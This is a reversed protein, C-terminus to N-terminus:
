LMKDSNKEITILLLLKINTNVFVIDGLRERFSHPVKHIIQEDLMLGSWVKSLYKINFKYINKFRRTKQQIVVIINYNVFYRSSLKFNLCEYKISYDADEQRYM